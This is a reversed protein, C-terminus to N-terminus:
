LGDGVKGFASRGGQHPVIVIPEVGLWYCIERVLAGQRVPSVVFHHECGEVLVTNLLDLAPVDLRLEAWTGDYVQESPLIDGEALVFRNGAPGALRMVTAPSPRLTEQVVCGLWETRGTIPTQFHRTYCHGSEDALSPAAAGCHWFGLTDRQEDISIMDLLTVVTHDAAYSCLLMSILGLVDAEDSVLLGSDCLRAAAACPTTGMGDFWEPWCRLAIGDWTREDALRRLAWEGRITQELENDPTDVVPSEAKLKTVEAAAEKQPMQAALSFVASLDVRQVTVGFRQKVSFEDYNSGYFGPVRGSGVLGIRTHRLKRLVSAARITDAIRALATEDEPAGFVWKYRAGMQYFISCYFNQACLSNLRLLGTPEPIGWIVTPIRAQGTWRAYELAIEGSPFATTQLILLDSGQAALREASAHADTGLELLEEVVLSAGAQQCLNEAAGITAEYQQAALVTDFGAQKTGVLAVRLQDIAM